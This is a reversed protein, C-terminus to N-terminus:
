RCAALATQSNLDLGTVHLFTQHPQMGQNHSDLGKFLDPLIGDTLQYASQSIGTGIMPICGAAVALSGCMRCLSDAGTGNALALSRDHM